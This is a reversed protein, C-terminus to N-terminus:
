LPIVNTRIAMRELKNNLMIMGSFRCGGRMLHPAPKKPIM